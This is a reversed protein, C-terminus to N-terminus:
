KSDNNENIAKQRNLKEQKSMERVELEQVQDTLIHITHVQNRITLLASDLSKYTRYWGCLLAVVLTLWFLDRISFRIKM